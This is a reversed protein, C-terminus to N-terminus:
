SGDSPPVDSILRNAEANDREARQATTWIVWAYVYAFFLFLAPMLFKTFYCPHLVPSGRTCQFDMEWGVAVSVLFAVAWYPPTLVALAIFHKAKM